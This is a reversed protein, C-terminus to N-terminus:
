CVTEEMRGPRGVGGTAGREPRAELAHARPPGEPQLEAYSLAKDTEGFRVLLQLAEVPIGASVTNLSSQVLSLRILEVTDLPKVAEIASLALSVDAAFSAHTGFRRQKERM